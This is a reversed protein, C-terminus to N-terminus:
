SWGLIDVIREALKLTDFPKVISGAINPHFADKAKGGRVKATLLIVPITQTVADAHLREFTCLGDMEPMMIDLLIADPHKAKAMEIGKKGSTATLVEWGITMELGLKVIALIGEEDDVILIRKSNM